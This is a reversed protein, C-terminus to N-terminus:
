KKVEDELEREQIELTMLRWLQLDRISSQGREFILYDLSNFRELLEEDDYDEIEEINELEARSFTAKSDGLEIEVNSEQGKKIVNKAKERDM